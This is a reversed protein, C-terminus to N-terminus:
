AAVGPAAGLGQAATFLGQQYSPNTLAQIFSQGFRAM